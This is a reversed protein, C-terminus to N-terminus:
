RARLALRAKARILAPASVADQVVGVLGTFNQGLARPGAPGRSRHEPRRGV